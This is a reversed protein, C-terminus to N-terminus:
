TATLRARGARGGSKPMSRATGTWPTKRTAKGADPCPGSGKVTKTLAMYRAASPSGNAKKTWRGCPSFSMPTPTGGKQRPHYIRSDHRQFFFERCHDRILDAYQESPIERPIALVFRRALQSTWQKEQAEASNWLTNRDACEPPVHPPLLIEKHTIETKYPYYKREQGYESSLKEGSQYAAACVASENESRRVITIKCHPYPL